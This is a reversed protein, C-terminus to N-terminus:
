WQENMRIRGCRSLYNPAASTCNRVRWFRGCGKKCFIVRQGSKQVHQKWTRARPDGNWVVILVILFQTFWLSLFITDGSKIEYGIIVSYGPPTKEPPDLTPHFSSNGNSTPYDSQPIPRIRHITGQASDKSRFIDLTSSDVGSLYQTANGQSGHRISVESPPCQNHPKTDIRSHMPISNHIPYSRLCSQPLLLSSEYNRRLQALYYLLITFYQIPSHSLYYNIGSDFGVLGAGTTLLRSLLSIDDLEVFLIDDGLTRNVVTRLVNDSVFFL